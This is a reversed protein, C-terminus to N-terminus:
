RSPHGDSTWDLPGIDYLITCIIYVVVYRVKAHLDLIRALSKIVLQINVQIWGIPGEFVELIVIAGVTLKPQGFNALIILGESQRFDTSEWIEFQVVSVQSNETSRRILARPKFHLM